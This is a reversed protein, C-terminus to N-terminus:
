EDPFLSLQGDGEKLIPILVNLTTGPMYGLDGQVLVFGEGTEDTGDFVTLLRGTRLIAFARLTRLSADIHTFGEGPIGRIRSDQSRLKVSSRSKLASQFAREEAEKPGWYISLEQAQRAAIGVGDDNVCVQIFDTRGRKTATALRNIYGKLRGTPDPLGTVTKYYGLLFYSVIKTGEPLPKRRAHDYVNQIAEFTLKIVNQLHDREFYSPRVNVFPLSGLFADRFRDEREPNVSSGRHLEGFCVANQDQRIANESYIQQVKTTVDEGECVIRGAHSALADGLCSRTFSRFWDGGFPPVSVEISKGSYRRLSNGIRWGAGPHVYPYGAFRLFVKRSLFEDEGLKRIVREAHDLSIASSFEFLLPEALNQEMATGRLM